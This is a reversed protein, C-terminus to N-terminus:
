EDDIGSGRGRKQPDQRLLVKRFRASVSEALNKLEQPTCGPIKPILHQITKEQVLGHEIMADLFPVDKPRGAMAKALFLDAPHMCHGIIGNTNPSELPYCRAQWGEPARAAEVSVGQAYYGFSKHFYSEEGLTGDILDSKRDDNHIPIIDAETSLTFVGPWARPPKGRHPKGAWKRLWPLISQSGIVLVSKDGIIAGSARILHELQAETM